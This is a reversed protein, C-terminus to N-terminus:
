DDLAEFLAPQEPGATSPRAVFEGADDGYRQALLAEMMEANKAAKGNAHNNFFVYTDAARAEIEAIRDTWPVLEEPTYTYDYRTVNSGRWWTRANRGHFRVYGVPATVESSPHLLGELAPMDVNGWGAGLETLLQATAPRQWAHNRFEVVVPVGAFAEIARALYRERNGEPRFGNPFQLLVCALKGADRAPEISEVLHGADPHVALSGADTPHTVTKPAKFSFRFAPPTRAVMSAVTRLSPVGYYSSDIEVAPFSRAYRRLMEAPRTKPAYFPGIWDDYAFGCTGVYIM